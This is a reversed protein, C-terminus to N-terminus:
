AAYNIVRNRGNAKATYVARDSAEILAELRVPKALQSLMAV